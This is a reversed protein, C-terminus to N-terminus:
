ILWPPMEYLFVEKLGKWPLVLISIRLLKRGKYDSLLFILMVEVNVISATM